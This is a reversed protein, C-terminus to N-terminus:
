LSTTIECRRLSATPMTRSMRRVAAIMKAHGKAGALGVAPRYHERVHLCRRGALLEQAEAAVKDQESEGASETELCQDIEVEVVVGRELHRHEEHDEACEYGEARRDTVCQAAWLAGKVEAPAVVISGPPIKM